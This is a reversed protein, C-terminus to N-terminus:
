VSVMRRQQIHVTLMHQRLLQSIMGLAAARSCLVLDVVLGTKM